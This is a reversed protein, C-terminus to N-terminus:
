NLTAQPQSHCLLCAIEPGRTVSCAITYEQERMTWSFVGARASAVPTFRHSGGGGGSAHSVLLAATGGNVCYAVAAVPSGAHETM